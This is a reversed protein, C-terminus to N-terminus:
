RTISCTGSKWFARVIFGIAALAAFWCWMSGWTGYSSYMYLSFLLIVITYTAAFYWRGIFMPSILFFMWAFYVWLPFKLWNWKLHGNAAVEASFDAKTKTTVAYYVMYAALLAYIPLMYKIYVRQPTNSLLMISAAPELLILIFGIVSWWYNIAAAKAKSSISGDLSRWLFTEVLQMSGYTAMYVLGALPVVQNLYALVVGFVVLLWTNFSVAANWCM